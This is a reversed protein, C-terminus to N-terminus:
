EWNEALSLYICSKRKGTNLILLFKTSYLKSLILSQKMHSVKETESM